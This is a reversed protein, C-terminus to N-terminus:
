ISFTIQSITTLSYLTGEHVAQIIIFDDIEEENEDQASAGIIEFDM